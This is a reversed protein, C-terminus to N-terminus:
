KAIVFPGFPTDEILYGLMSIQGRLVDSQTFQKNGRYIERKKALAKIKIPIKTSKLEIEFIKLKKQLLKILNKADKTSLNWIYNQLSSILNISAALAKPTNFDEDMAANFEKEFNSILQATPYNKNKDRNKNQSESVFQLKSMFISITKLSQTTQEALQETYNFPSRYHNSFVMMRLVEAPYNKLFDQITIFNYLSKSMKEGNVLLFGTHMWIKVLPKKGSAAEQQAIEAEHHPFKLDIGGGHIDYQPGFFKETIATDEIHWGPRGKGLPTNWFPEGEKYFKWLVFDAKNKKNISQDIRSIADEAQGSTRRSLKGYDAFASVDFYYGDNDIKYAYGKEILRQIQGIIQPIFETARAYKNVATIKLSKLDKLYEKEFKRALLLPRVNNEKARAIIKDDVDTINQLYFVNIGCSKLYKVFADFVIYTRAHGIHSYDYVTPGCVFLNLKGKKPKPLPAKKQSLSDYIQM